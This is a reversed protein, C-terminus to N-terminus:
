ISRLKKAAEALRVAQVTASVDHVRLLSAGNMVALTAAALSGGLRDTSEDSGALKSIFSKRSAGVLFPYDPFRRIIKDLNIILDLNQSASKGFGIGVDLVINERSIGSSVATKLSAELGSGVEAFIDEVRDQSHMGSFEGRSHMIIVGAKSRAAVEPLESDFRLGSIDNIIEAGAEIAARAVESKTTDVSIPVDFRKTIAEVVPIVRQIEESASVQVSGPRTSEGGIDLIDAGESIASAARRLADDPELFYGGDSFSDPTANIIAVILTKDGIPLIRRSTHWGSNTMEFHENAAIM